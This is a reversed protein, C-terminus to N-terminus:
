RAPNFGGQKLYRLEAPTSRRGLLANRHPFRGFRAIIARHHLSYSNFQEPPMRERYFRVCDDQDSLAESHMFPMYVFSRREPPLLIDKDLRILRRAVRLAEADNRFATASGRNLNRTFQDILLILALGSGADEAWARFQGREAAAHLAAYRRRIEADFRPGGRFWSAPGAEVFWFRLVDRAALATAM